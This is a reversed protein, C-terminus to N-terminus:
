RGPTSSFLVLYSGSLMSFFCQLFQQCPVIIYINLFGYMRLPLVFCDKAVMSLLRQFVHVFMTVLTIMVQKWFEASACMESAIGKVETGQSLPKGRLVRDM